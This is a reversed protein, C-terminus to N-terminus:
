CGFLLRRTQQDLKKFVKKRAMAQPKSILSVRSIKWATNAATCNYDVAVSWAAKKGLSEDSLTASGGGNPPTDCIYSGDIAHLSSVYPWKLRDSTPSRKVDKLSDTRDPLQISVVFSTERRGGGQNHTAWVSLRQGPSAFPLGRSWNLSIVRQDPRFQKVNVKTLPTSSHAHGDADSEICAHFELPPLSSDDSESVSDSDVSESSTGSEVVPRGPGPADAEEEHGDADEDDRKSSRRPPPVPVAAAAARRVRKAAPPLPPPSNGPCRASDRMERVADDRERKMRMCDRQMAAYDARLSALQEEASPGAAAQICGTSPPAAPTSAPLVFSPSLMPPPLSFQSQAAQVGRLFSQLHMAQEPGSAPLFPPAFPLGAAANNVHPASGAPFM